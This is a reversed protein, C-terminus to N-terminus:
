CKLLVTVQANNNYVNTQSANVIMQANVDMEMFDQELQPPVVQYASVELVYVSCAIWTQNAIVDMM